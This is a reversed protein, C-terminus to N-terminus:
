SLAQNSKLISSHEPFFFFRICHIKFMSAKSALLSKIPHLYNFGNIATGGMETNSGGIINRM